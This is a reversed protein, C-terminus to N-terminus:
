PHHRFHDFKYVYQRSHSNPDNRNKLFNNNIMNTNILTPDETSYLKPRNVYDDNKFDFNKNGINDSNSKLRHTKDQNIMQYSNINQQQVNRAANTPM